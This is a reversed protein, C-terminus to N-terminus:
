LLTKLAEIVRNIYNVLTNNINSMGQLLELNLIYMEILEKDIDDEELEINKINFEIKIQLPRGSIVSKRNHMCYLTRYFVSEDELLGNDIYKLLLGLYLPNSFGITSIKTYEMSLAEQIANYRGYIGHKTLKNLYNDKRLSPKFVYPSNAVLPKVSHRISSLSVYKDEHKSSKINDLLKNPVYCKGTINEDEDVIPILKNEFDIDNYKLCTLECLEKGSFGLWLMEMMVKDIDNALYMSSIEALDKPLIYRKEKFDMDIFRDLSLATDNLLQFYNINNVQRYNNRVCFDTYDILMSLFIKLFAVSKTRISYIADEIEEPVFNCIDKDYLEESYKLRKFLHRVLGENVGNLSKIYHLKVDENYFEM